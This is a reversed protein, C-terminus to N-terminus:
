ASRRTPIPRVNEATVQYPTPGLRLAFIGISKGALLARSWRGGQGFTSPGCCAILRRITAVDSLLEDPWDDLPRPQPRTIHPDTM